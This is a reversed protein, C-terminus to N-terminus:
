PETNGTLVFGAWYYPHAYPQKGDLTLGRLWSQARQLAVAADAGPAAIGGYFRGMLKATSVDEVSWLSAVVHKVGRRRVIASLGEVERGDDTVAGGLGTECASLTLLEIGHFDLSQLRDLTLRSGDGTVLFSRLSNGPRLRFHTGLHLVSFDRPGDLLENFTTETFAADAYGKGPLAGDAPQDSALGAIPGRVVARLEDAVAPLARFGAVAQTVGLGRVNRPSRPDLATARADGAPASIEIAYKDGLYRRGDSLADFPLYRLAGDLQLVLRTAGARDAAQDVPKAVTDYLLHAADTVDEHRGIRDLFNGIERRLTRSDIPVEVDVQGRATVVVIRLHNETELYSATATDPARSKTPLSKRPAAAGKGAQQTEALFRGIRAGQAEEASRQGLLLADLRKREKVSIRGTERLRSLRALEEGTAPDTELTRSYREWLVRESETLELGRDGANPEVGRLAFEYLEERKLARLVELGEDIRGAEMLWDAVARYIAAKDEVFGRDLRQDDGLFRGRLLEVETLAQKGFLIAVPRDHRADLQRALRFQARFLPDPTGLASAASLAKVAWAFAGKRDGRVAALRSQNAYVEERISPGGDGGSALRAAADACHPAEDPNARLEVSCLDNVVRLIAPHGDPLRRRLLELAEVLYARSKATDDDMTSEALARLVSARETSLTPEDGAAALGLNLTARGQAVDGLALWLEGLGRHFSVLTQREIDKPHLDVIGQAREYAHLAEPLHGVSREAEGVIQLVTVLRPADPGLTREAESLARRAADLAEAGRDRGHLLIALRTLASLRHRQLPGEASESLRVAERIAAESDEFEDLRELVQALLVYAPVLQAAPGGMRTEIDIQTRAHNRADAFNEEHLAVNTLTNEIAAAAESIEDGNRKLIDNARGLAARVAGFERLSVEVQALGVLAKQLEISREGPHVERVALAREWAAKSEALRGQRFDIWAHAVYIDALEEADPGLKLTYIREAETLLPEAETHKDMYAILPMSLSGLWWALEVSNEGYERAVRPIAACLMKFTLTPDTEAKAEVEKRLKPIPTTTDAAIPQDQCSPPLPIAGRSTTHAAIVLAVILSIAVRFGTM